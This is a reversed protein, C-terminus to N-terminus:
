ASTPRRRLEQKSVKGVVNKPIEALVEIQPVKFRALQEQCHALLEEVLRAPSSRRDRPVVFAVVREGYTADPLGLVAAEAVLPHAYLVEEVERPSINEGGRIILDKSRDTLFLYGDQDLYGLDGTRLWGDSMAAATENPLGLYGLMVSPGQTVVEGISEAPQESGDPALVRVKLGDLATGVSGLRRRTPPNMTVTCTAETLGYSVIVMLRFHEEFRQQVKVPLPAAGTRVFRLSSRLAMPPPEPGELLRSLITPVATFYTPRYRVVAPWFEDLVFRKRLVVSAGALFPVVVQNCLANVHFIPMIVLLRDEPGVGTRDRVQRANTLINRHSLQVGKSQGTTGSTYCLVATRDPDISNKLPARPGNGVQTNLATLPLVRCKPLITVAREIKGGVLDDDVIVLAAECDMLQAALERETLSPNLPAYTAGCKIIGFLNIILEPRSGVVQCVIDGPKIGNSILAHATQNSLAELDAYTYILDDFLLAPQESTRDALLDALTEMLAM